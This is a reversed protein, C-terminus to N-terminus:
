SITTEGVNVSGSTTLSNAFVDGEADILVKVSDAVALALLNSDAEASAPNIYLSADDANTNEVGPAWAIAWDHPKTPAHTLIVQGQANLTGSFTATVSGISTAGISTASISGATINGGSDFAGPPGEPGRNGRRGRSGTSGTIGQLGQSGQLGQPGQPGPSGTLGILGEGKLKEIAKWIGQIEEKAISEKEPLFIRWPRTVFQYTKKFSQSIYRGTQRLADAIYMIGKIVSRAITQIDKALRSYITKAGEAIDQGFESVGDAFASTRTKVTDGLWYSYEKSIDQYNIVALSIDKAIRSTTNGTEEIIIEGAEGVIYTLSSLEDGVTLLQSSIASLSGRFASKINQINDKVVSTGTDGITLIGETLNISITKTGEALDRGLQNINKTEEIFRWSLEAAEDSIVLAGERALYLGFTVSQTAKKISNSFDFSVDKAGEAIDQGFESVGDAFASTGTKVTDSLWYSYEKSIDQYNIVALSIDKAIR